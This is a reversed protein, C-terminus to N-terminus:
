YEKCLQDFMKSVMWRPAGHEIARDIIVGIRADHLTNILYQFDEPTGYRFFRKYFASMQEMAEAARVLVVYGADTHTTYNERELKARTAWESHQEDHQRIWQEDVDALLDRPKADEALSPDPASAIREIAEPDAERLPRIVGRLERNDQEKASIEYRLQTARARMKMISVIGSEGLLAYISGFVAGLTIILVTRGSRKRQKRSVLKRLKRRPIRIRVHM